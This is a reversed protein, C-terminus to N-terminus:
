FIRPAIEVLNGLKELNELNKSIWFYFERVNGPKGTKELSRVVRFNFFKHFNM